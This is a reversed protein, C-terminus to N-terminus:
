QSGGDAGGVLFLVLVALTAIQLAVTLAILLKPSIFNFDSEEDAFRGAMDNYGHLAVVMIAFGITVFVGALLGVVWDPWGRGLIATVLAGGGAIAIGTRLLAFFTRTVAMRTRELAFDTRKEALNQEPM